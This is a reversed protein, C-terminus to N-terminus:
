KFFNSILKNTLDIENFLGHGANPIMEFHIFPNNVNKIFNDSEKSDWLVSDKEGMIILVPKKIKKVDEEIMEPLGFAIYSKSYQQTLSLLKFVQNRVEKNNIPGANIRELLEDTNDFISHFLLSMGKLFGPEKKTYSSSIVILKEVREPYYYMFWRSIFGGYSTGSVNAKDIKLAIFVENLWDAYDKSSKPLKILKSKGAQGIIDIGYIRFDKLGNSFMLPYLSSNANFGHLAVISKKNEPRIIVVHTKGYSTDVDIERYPVTSKSLFENYLEMIKNRGEESKYIQYEGNVPEPQLSCSSFIFFLCLFLNAKFLIKRILM